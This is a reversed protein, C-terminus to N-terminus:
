NKDNSVHKTFHPPVDTTNFKNEANNDTARQYIWRIIVHRYEDLLVTGTSGSVTDARSM